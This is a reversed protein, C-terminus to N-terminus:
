KNLNIRTNPTNKKELGALLERRLKLMATADCSRPRGEGHEKQKHLEDEISKRHQIELDM